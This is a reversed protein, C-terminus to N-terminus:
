ADPVWTECHIVPMAEVSEGTDAARAQEICSGSIEQDSQNCM